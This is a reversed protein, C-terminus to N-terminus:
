RLFLEVVAELAPKGPRCVGCHPDNLLIQLEEVEQARPLDRRAHEAGPPVTMKVSLSLLSRLIVTYIGLCHCDIVTYFPAM